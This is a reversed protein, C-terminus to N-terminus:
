SGVVDPSEERPTTPRAGVDKKVLDAPMGSKFSKLCDGKITVRLEEALALIESESWPNTGQKQGEATIVHALKAAGAYGDTLERVRKKLNGLQM